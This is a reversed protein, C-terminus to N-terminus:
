KVFARVPNRLTDECFARFRPDADSDAAERLAAWGEPADGQAVAWALARRVHADGEAGAGSADGRLRRLLAPVAAADKLRGLGVAAELRVEPTGDALLSALPDRAEPSGTSGLASAVRLRLAPSVEATRAALLRIAAPRGLARLAPGVAAPLAEGGDGLLAEVLLAAGGEPALRGLIGALHFRARGTPAANRFADVLAAREAETAGALRGPDRLLDLAAGSRARPHAEGAARVLAARVAPVAEPGGDAEGALARFLRVTPDGDLVTGGPLEFLGLAGGVVERGGERIGGLFAVFRVGAPVRVDHRDASGAVLVREGAGAAGKLVEVVELVGAVGDAPPASPDPAVGEVVAVLAAARVLARPTVDEEARSEAKAPAPALLLLAALAAPLIALRSSTM